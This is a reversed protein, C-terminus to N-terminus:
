NKRTLRRAARPPPNIRLAPLRARRAPAAETPEAHTWHMEVPALLVVSCESVRCRDLGIEEAVAQALEPTAFPFTTGATITTLGELPCYSRSPPKDEKTPTGVPFIERQFLANIAKVARRGPRRQGCMLKKGMDHSVGIERCLDPLRMDKEIM